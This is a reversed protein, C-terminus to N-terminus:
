FPVPSNNRNKQSASDVVLNCQRETSIMSSRMTHLFVEWTGGSEVKIIVEQRGATGAGIM